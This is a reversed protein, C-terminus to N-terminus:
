GERRVAVIDFAWDRPFPHGWRGRWKSAPLVEKSVLGNRFRVRLPADGHFGREGPWPIWDDHSM